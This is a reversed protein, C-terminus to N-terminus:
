TLAPVSAHKHAHTSSQKAICFERPGTCTRVILCCCQLKQTQAACVYVDVADYLVNSAIYFCRYDLKFPCTKKKLFFLCLRSFYDSSM